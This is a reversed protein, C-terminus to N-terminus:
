GKTVQGCHPFSRVVARHCETGAPEVERGGVVSFGRHSGPRLEHKKVYLFGERLIKM